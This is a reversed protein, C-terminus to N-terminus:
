NWAAVQYAPGPQDPPLLNLTVSRAAVAAPPLSRAIVHVTVVPGPTLYDPLYGGNPGADAFAQAVVPDMKTVDLGGTKLFAVHPALRALIDPTMGLVLGLEDQSLFLRGYPGYPLGAAAYQATKAGHPRPMDGRSHFDSIADAVAVAQAPPVGVDQLLAVLMPIPADNVNVLGAEDTVAVQVATGGIRLTRTATDHDWQREALRFLAENLAGDVAAQAVATSRLRAAMQAESRGSATMATVVLTILVLTWLVIILAFGRDAM